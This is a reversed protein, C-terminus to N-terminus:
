PVNESYHASPDAARAPSQTVSIGIGHFHVTFGDLEFTAGPEVGDSALRRAAEAWVAAVLASYLEVRMKASLGDRFVRVVDALMHDMPLNPPFGHFDFCPECAVDRLQQAIPSV